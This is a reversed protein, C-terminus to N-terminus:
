LRGVVQGPLSVVSDFIQALEEESFRSKRLGQKFEKFDVTGNHSKDIMDFVKRLTIIEQTTSKHAMIKPRSVLSTLHPLDHHKLEIIETLAEVTEDDFV